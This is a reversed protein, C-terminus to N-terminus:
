DLRVPVGPTMLRDLSGALPRLLEALGQFPPDAEAADEGSTHLVRLGRAGDAAAELLLTKGVGPEGRMVLAASEGWRIGVHLESDRLCLQAMRATGIPMDRERPHQLIVVKTTTEIQPLARCYCVSMPRRCRGCMARPADIM